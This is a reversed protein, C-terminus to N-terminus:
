LDPIEASVPSGLRFIGNELVEGRLGGYEGKYQETFSPREKGQSMMSLRPIDCPTCPETGRIVADPGVRLTVGVLRPWYVPAIGSVIINRRTEHPGYGSALVTELAVFTIDRIKPKAPPKGSYFGTGALYRDKILGDVTQLGGHVAAVETLDLMPTSQAPRNEGKDAPIFGMPCIFIGVVHGRLIM